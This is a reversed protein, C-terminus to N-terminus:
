GECNLITGGAAMHREPISVFGGVSLFIV